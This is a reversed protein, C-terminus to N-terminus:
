QKAVPLEERRSWDQWSGDYLKVQRGLYREVFYLVTAQQGIHCYTVATEGAPGMKQRLAEAGLLKRSEDFVSPFPVNVAGPIHGARPMNGANAGTYFEPLRADLLRVKADDLHGRVWEADAVVDPRAKVELTGPAWPAAETSMPRGEARWAALGGDLLSAREGLGLYDLTFWVRTASQVSENAPYVVVRSSNSIGLKELAAKLAAVPPLELRLGREGTISIDGLTVLRAGPIHGEGYDKESGVHLVVLGDDKLHSGLWGTSVVMETALFMMGLFM